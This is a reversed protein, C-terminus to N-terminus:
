QLEHWIAERHILLTVTAPTLQDTFVVHVRLWRVLGLIVPAMPGEIM